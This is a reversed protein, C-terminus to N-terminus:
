PAVHRRTVNQCLRQRCISARAFTFTEEHAYLRANTTGRVTPYAPDSSRTHQQLMSTYPKAKSHTHQTLTPHPNELAAGPKMKNSLAPVRLRCQKRTSLSSISELCVRTSSTKAQNHENHPAHAPISPTTKLNKNATEHHLARMM